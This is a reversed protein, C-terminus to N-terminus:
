MLIRKRQPDYLARQTELKLPYRKKYVEIEFGNGRDTEAAPIYAYCINKKVTHGYGASSSVGLVSQARIIPASSQIMVPEDVDLTFTCLKWQPGENKVRALAAKGIFDAKELAVCFGLGADYPTYEPTLESGWDAYGKELHLSAIARYGANKIGLDRGAEWLSEYVHVAFEAPIYLEYGLEGVYTVRFCLVPAYGVTFIKCAGFTFSENRIDARTLKQLLQRSKPGIVNIVAYASTMEQVSVSGDTPRHHNLWWGARLGFATGVVLLFRNEAL